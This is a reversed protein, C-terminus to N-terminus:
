GSWGAPTSCCVFGVLWPATDVMFAEKIVVVAAETRHKPLRLKLLIANASCLVEAVFTSSRRSRL